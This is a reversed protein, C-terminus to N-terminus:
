QPVQQDNEVQRRYEAMATQWEDFLPNDKFMGAGAALSRKATNLELPTIEAGATLRSQVAAQLQKLAEERTEGEATFALPQGSTARYGNGAVRELLVAIEM